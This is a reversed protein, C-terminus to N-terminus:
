EGSYEMRLMASDRDRSIPAFGEVRKNAQM